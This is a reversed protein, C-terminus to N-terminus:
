DGYGCASFGACAVAVVAPDRSTSQIGCPDISGKAGLKCLRRPPVRRAIVRLPKSAAAPPTASAVARRPKAAHGAPCSNVSLFFLVISILRLPERGELLPGSAQNM